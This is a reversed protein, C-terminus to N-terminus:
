SAWGFALPGRERAKMWTASYLLRVLRPSSLSINFDGSAQRVAVCLPGYILKILGPVMALDKDSSYCLGPNGSRRPFLALTFFFIWKALSSKFYLLTSYCLRSGGICSVKGGAFQDSVLCTGGVKCPFLFFFFAIPLWTYPNNENTKSKEEGITGTGKKTERTIM